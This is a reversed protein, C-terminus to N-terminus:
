QRGSGRSERRFDAVEGDSTRELDEPSIPFVADPAGAAAWVVPHRMLDRDILVRQRRTHGFPPTSGIPYGTADRVEDATAKRVRRAGLLTALRGPDAQNSGSTLALFPTGDGVFVLSKVIQGIECGIAAAADVATRTGQEFRRIEPRRGAARAAQEFREAGGAV